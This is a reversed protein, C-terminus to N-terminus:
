CGARPCVFAYTPPPPSGTWTPLDIDLLAVDPLQQLAEPVIRDGSALAAVVELDDEPELLAILTRPLGRCGRRDPSPTRM